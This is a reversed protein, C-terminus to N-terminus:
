YSNHKCSMHVSPCPSQTISGFQKNTAPIIIGPTSATVCVLALIDVKVTWRMNSHCVDEIWTEWHCPINGTSLSKLPCSPWLVVYTELWAGLWRLVSLPIMVRRPHMLTIPPILCRRPNSLYYIL